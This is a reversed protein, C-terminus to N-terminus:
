EAHAVGLALCQSPLQFGLTGRGSGRSVLQDRRSLGETEEENRSSSGLDM